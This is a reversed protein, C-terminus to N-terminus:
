LHVCCRQVSSWGRGTLTSGKSVCALGCVFAFLCVCVTLTDTDKAMFQHSVSKVSQNECQVIVALSWCIQLPNLCKSFDSHTWWINWVWRAYCNLSLSFIQIWNRMQAHMHHDHEADLMFSWSHSDTQLWLSRLVCDLCVCVSCFLEQSGDIFLHWGEVQVFVKNIDDVNVSHINM